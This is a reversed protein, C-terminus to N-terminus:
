ITFGKPLTVQFSKNGVNVTYQTDMRTKIKDLKNQLMIIQDNKENSDIFNEINNMLDEAGNKWSLKNIDRDIWEILKSIGIKGKHYSLVVDSLKVINLGVDPYKNMIDVAGSFQSDSKLMRLILIISNKFRYKIGWKVHEKLSTFFIDDDNEKIMTMFTLLISQHYNADIDAKQTFDSVIECVTMKKICLLEYCDEMFNETSKNVCTNILLGYFLTKEDPFDFRSLYQHYCKFLDVNKKFYLIANAVDVFKFIIENIRSDIIETMKNRSDVYVFIIKSLDIPVQDLLTNNPFEM